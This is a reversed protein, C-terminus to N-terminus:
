LQALRKQIEEKLEKTFAAEDRAKMFAMDTLDVITENGDILVDLYLATGAAGFKESVESNEEDDANIMRYGIKGAAVEKAFYTELTQHAGAEIANCTVCRHTAHFEVVTINNKQLKQETATSETETTQTSATSAQEAQNASDSACGFLFLAFSIFFVFLSKM